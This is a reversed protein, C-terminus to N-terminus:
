FLSNLWGCPVFCNAVNEGSRQKQGQRPKEGHHVTVQLGFLGKVGVLYNQEHKIVAVFGTLIHM